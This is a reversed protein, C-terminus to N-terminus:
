SGYVQPHTGVDLMLVLTYDDYEEFIIRINGTVSIARRGQMSGKLPHNELIPDFPNTRFKFVTTKVKERLKPTLKELHKGFFKHFIIKM